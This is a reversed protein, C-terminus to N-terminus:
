ITLNNEEVADAAVKYMFAFFLLFFPTVFNDHTLAFVLNDNWLIQLNWVGLLFVFDALAIGFMLKENSRPFVSNERLGSLTNFVAKMCLVIMAVNGLLYCALVFIKLTTNVTWNVSLSSVNSGLLNFSNKILLVLWVFCFALAICCCLKINKLTKDKM